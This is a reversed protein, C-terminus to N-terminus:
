EATPTGTSLDVYLDGTATSSDQAFNLTYTGGSAVDITDSALDRQGLAADAPTVTVTHEGASLGQAFMTPSGSFVHDFVRQGDVYVDVLGAVGTGSAFYVQAAPAETLPAANATVAFSVAATSLVALMKKLHRM